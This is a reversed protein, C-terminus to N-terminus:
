SVGNGNGNEKGSNESEHTTFWGGITERMPSVVGIHMLMLGSITIMLLFVTFDGLAYVGDISGDFVYHYVIVFLHLVSIFLLPIAFPRLDHADLLLHLCLLVFLVGLLIALYMGFRMSDYKHIYLKQIVKIYLIGTAILCGWAYIKIVIPYIRNGFGRISVLGLVWGFFFTFGIVGIKVPIGELSNTLGDEFVDFILKAGGSLAISVAALSVLMTVLSLM